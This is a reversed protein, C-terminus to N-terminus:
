APWIEPAGPLFFFGPSHEVATGEFKYLHVNPAFDGPAEGADEYYFPPDGSRYERPEEGPRVWHYITPPHVDTTPRGLPIM